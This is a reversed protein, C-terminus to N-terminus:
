KRFPSISDGVRSVPKGGQQVACISKKSAALGEQLEKLRTGDAMTSFINTNACLDYRKSVLNTVFRIVLTTSM